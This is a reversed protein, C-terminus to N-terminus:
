LQLKGSAGAEAEFHRFMCWDWASEETARVEGVAQIHVLSMATPAAAKAWAIAVAAM